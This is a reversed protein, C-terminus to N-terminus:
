QFRCARAQAAYRAMEKRGSDTKEGANKRDFRPNHSINKAVVACRACMFPRVVLAVGSLLDRTRRREPLALFGGLRTRALEPAHRPRRRLCAPCDSSDSEELVFGGGGTSLRRGRWLLRAGWLVARLPSACVLGM